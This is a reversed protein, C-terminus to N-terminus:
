YLSKGECKCLISCLRVTLKTLMFYGDMHRKANLSLANYNDIKEGLLSAQEAISTFKCILIDFLQDFQEPIHKNPPITQKPYNKISLSM